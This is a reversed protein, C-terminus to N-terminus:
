KFSILFFINILIFFYFILFFYIKNKIENFIEYNKKQITIALIIISALSASLDALFISISLLIPFFFILIILLKDIKNTKHIFQDLILKM